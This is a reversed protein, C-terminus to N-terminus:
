KILPLLLGIGLAIVGWALISRGQARIEEVAALVTGVVFFLTEISM